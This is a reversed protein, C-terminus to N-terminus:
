SRQMARGVMMTALEPMSVVPRWGMQFIRAPNSVLRPYEAIFGPITRVVTRWDLDVAAFCAAVWQEISYAEGSGIVAEHVADQHILTIMAAATDRAFTWEKAVSLDGLELYKQKGSAIAAAAQAVIQSVHTSPRLPSEHHFLYGVYIRLNLSRYYRATYVSAIRSVAYPCSPAFATEEDIPRGQNVFQVGSGTIFVRAEPAARRVAELINWTGGAIAQHNDFLAEHRTTSRAALHFVMDPRQDRIIEHVPGFASVDALEDGSHRGVGVVMVERQRLLEALYHGTQGGVGFIVAKRMKHGVVNFRLHM